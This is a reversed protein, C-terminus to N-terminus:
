KGMDELLVPNVAKVWKLKVTDKAILCVPDGINLLTTVQDFFGEKELVDININKDEYVWWTIGGAYAIVSFKSQNMM